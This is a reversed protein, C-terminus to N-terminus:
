RPDTAAAPGLGRMLTSVTARAFAPVDRGAGDGLFAALFAAHFCAGLLLAAAADPDADARLRGLDREARLYDALAQVPKRPGAERELLLERYKALLEPEALLAHGVPMARGFFEVAHEALGTLKQELDGSGVGSRLAAVDQQFGGPRSTVMALVLESKSRYHKYLAAESLSAARAIEKTTARALGRERVVQEAAELIRTRTAAGGRDRDRDASHEVHKAATM